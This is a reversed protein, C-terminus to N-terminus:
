RRDIMYFIGNDSILYLLRMLEEKSLEEGNQFWFTVLGFVASIHYEFLYSSYTDPLQNAKFHKLFIPRIIQKIRDQFYPDRRKGVIISLYEKNQALISLFQEFIPNFDICEKSQNLEEIILEFPPLLLLELQNLVDYVDTFHDYFTTRHYGAIECIEKVSIKSIDKVQYLSWFADIIDKRTSEKSM